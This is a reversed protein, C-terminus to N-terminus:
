PTLAAARLRGVCRPGLGAGVSPPATAGGGARDWGRGWGRGESLATGHGWLAMLFSRQIPPPVKVPSARCYVRSRSSGGVWFLRMARTRVSPRESVWLSVVGSLTSQPGSM